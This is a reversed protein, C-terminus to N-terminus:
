QFELELGRVRFGLDQVRFGLTWSKFELGELRCYVATYGLSRSEFCPAMAASTM